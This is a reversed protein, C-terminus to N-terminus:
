RVIDSYYTIPKYCDTKIKKFIHTIGLMDYYFEFYASSKSVVLTIKSVEYKTKYGYFWNISLAYWVFHKETM